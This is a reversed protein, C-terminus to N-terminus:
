VRLTFPRIVVFWELHNCRSHPHCYPCKPSTALATTCYTTRTCHQGGNKPSAGDPLGLLDIPNTPPSISDIGSWQRSAPMCTKTTLTWPYIQTTLTWPYIQIGCAFSSSLFKQANLSSLKRENKSKFLLSVDCRSPCACLSSVEALSCFRERAIQLHPCQASHHRPPTLPMSRTSNESHQPLTPATSLPPMITAM